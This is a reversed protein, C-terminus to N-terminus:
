NREHDINPFTINNPDIMFAMSIQSEMKIHLEEIDKDKLVSKCEEIDRFFGKPKVEELHNPNLICKKAQERIKRGVRTITEYSYEPIQPSVIQVLIQNNNRAEKSSLLVEKVVLEPIKKNNLM